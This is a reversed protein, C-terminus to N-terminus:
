PLIESDYNRKETRMSLVDMSKKKEGKKKEREGGWSNRQRAEVGRRKIRKGHLFSNQAEGGGV